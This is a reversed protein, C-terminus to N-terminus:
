SNLEPIDSFEAQELLSERHRREYQDDVFQQLEQQEVRWAGGEGIQIARLENSDVLRRVQELDINLIEAVDTLTLFRSQPM